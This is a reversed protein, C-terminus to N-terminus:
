FSGAVGGCYMRYAQTVHARLSTGVVETSGFGFKRQVTESEHKWSVSASLLRQRLSHSAAM